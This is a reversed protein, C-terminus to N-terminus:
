CSAKILLALLLIIILTHGKYDVKSKIEKLEKLIRSFQSDDM